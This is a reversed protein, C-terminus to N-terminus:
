IQRFCVSDAWMKYESNAKINIELICPIKYSHISMIQETATKYLKKTTKILLLTESDKIIKSNWKYMSNIEFFNTCACLKKELLYKSIKIAEAKNKCIVYLM